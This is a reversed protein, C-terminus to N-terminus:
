KKEREVLQHSYRLFHSENNFGHMLINYTIKIMIGSPRQLDQWKAPAREGLCIYWTQGNEIM